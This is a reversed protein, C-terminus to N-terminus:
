EKAERSVIAPSDGPRVWTATRGRPEQAAMLHALYVSLSMEGFEGLFALTASPNLELIRDVLQERTLVTSPAPESEAVDSSKQATAVM